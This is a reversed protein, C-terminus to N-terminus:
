LAPDAAIARVASAPIWGISGNTFRAEVFNARRDVIDVEVGPSVPETFAPDYTVAAGKRVTEERLVVGEEIIKERHLDWAISCGFIIMGAALIPIAPRVRKLATWFLRATLWLWLGNWFTLFIAWRINPPILFHFFFFTHLLESSAPTPFQSQVKTRAFRLNTRLRSDGPIWRDAMRFWYMAEGVDHLRLFCNGLNYYLYGNRYGGSVLHRYRGLASQIYPESEEFSRSAAAKEMEAGAQAARAAADTQSLTEARATSSFMVLLVCAAAATFKGTGDIM